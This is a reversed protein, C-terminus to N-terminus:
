CRQFVLLLNNTVSKEEVFNIVMSTRSKTRVPLDFGLLPQLNKDNSGKWRRDSDWWYEMTGEPRTRGGDDSGAHTTTTLIRSKQTLQQVLFSPLPKLCDDTPNKRPKGRGRRCEM